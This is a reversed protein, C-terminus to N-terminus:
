FFSTVLCSAEFNVTLRTKTYIGINPKVDALLFIDETLIIEKELAMEEKWLQQKIEKRQMIRLEKSRTDLPGVSHHRRGKGM